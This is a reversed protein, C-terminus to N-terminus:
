LRTINVDNKDINFITKTVKKLIYKPTVLNIPREKKNNSVSWRPGKQGKLFVKKNNDDTIEKLAKESKDKFNHKNIKYENEFLKLLDAKRISYAEIHKLNNVTLKNTQDETWVWCLLYTDTECYQDGFLWGDKLVGKKNYSSIELSFTPINKNLYDTAAKEDINITKEENVKIMIDIGQYQKNSDDNRQIDEILDPYKEIMKPYFYKDLFAGIISEKKLDSPFNSDLM